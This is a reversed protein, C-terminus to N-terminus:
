EESLRSNPDNRLLPEVFAINPLSVLRLRQRGHVDSDVVSLTLGNVALGERQKLEVVNGSSLTLRLPTFPEFDILEQLDSPGM